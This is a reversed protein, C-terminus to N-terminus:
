NAPQKKKAKARNAERKLKEEEIKFKKEMLMRKETIENDAARSNVVWKGFEYNWYYIKGDSCLALTYVQNNASTTHVSVIRTEDDM